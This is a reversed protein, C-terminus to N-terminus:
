RPPFAPQRPRALTRRRARWGGFAALLAALLGLTAPSSAPVPVANAPALPDFPGLPGVAPCAPGAARVVQGGGASFAGQNVWQQALQLSGGALQLSGGAGIRVDRVGTLSGGAGLVLTGDVLLDTCALDASGGGLDITSGAPVVFQAHAPLAAALLCAAGWALRRAHPARALACWAATAARAYAM